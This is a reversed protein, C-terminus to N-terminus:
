KNNLYFYIISERLIYINEPKLSFLVKNKRHINELLELLHKSILIIEEIQLFNNKEIKDYDNLYDSLPYTGANELVIVM